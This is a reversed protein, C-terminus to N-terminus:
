NVFLHFTPRMEGVILKRWNRIPKVPGFVALPELEDESFFGLQRLVELSVAGRARRAGDGDSIKIAIGLASSGTGLAGPLIGIGEFGEAGAKVVVQGGGLTMLETDFRGPGGIMEPHAAMASTIVRCAEATQAPLGSPDALR